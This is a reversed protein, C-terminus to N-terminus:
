DELLDRNAKEVKHAVGVLGFGAGAMLLVESIAEYGLARAAAALGVLAAGLWTKWGGM